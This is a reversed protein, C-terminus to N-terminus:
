RSYLDIVEEIARFCVPCFGVENRTFMICDVRPRYMGQAEYNAGEFAGVKSAFEEDGLFDTLYVQQERFLVEM